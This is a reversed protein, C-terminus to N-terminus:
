EVTVTIVESVVPPDHPVHGHDGLVLQLTHEGPALEITVETQGGGFHKHNDDAAIGYGVDDDGFPARDIFLHHHGTKEKEIGSPAVGMGSLGFRVTVPGSVTDGDALGIFYVAAGDASPTEASVAGVGLLTIATALLIKKM